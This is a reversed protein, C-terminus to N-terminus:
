FGFDVRGCSLKKQLFVRLAEPDSIDRKPLLIGHKDSFFLAVLERSEGWTKIVRYPLQSTELEDRITIEEEGFLFTNTRVEKPMMRKSSWATLRFYFIGAFLFLTGIVLEVAVLVSLKGEAYILLCGSLLGLLGFLCYFGRMLLTKRRGTTKAYIRQFAILDRPTYQTVVEM